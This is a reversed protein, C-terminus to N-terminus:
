FEASFVFFPLHLVVIIIVIIIIIRYTFHWFTLLSGHSTIGYKSKMEHLDTFELLNLRVVYEKSTQKLRLSINM